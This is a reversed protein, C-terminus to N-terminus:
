KTMRWKLVNSKQLNQFRPIRNKRDSGQYAGIRRGLRRQRQIQHTGHNKLTRLLIKAYLDLRMQCQAACNHTNKDWAVFYIKFLRAKINELSDHPYAVLNSLAFDEWDEHTDDSPTCTEVFRCYNQTGFASCVFIPHLPLEAKISNQEAMQTMFSACFGSNTSEICSPEDNNCYNPFPIGVFKPIFTHIESTECDVVVFFTSSAENKRFDRVLDRQINIIADANYLAENIKFEPHEDMKFCAAFHADSFESDEVSDFDFLIMKRNGELNDIACIECLDDITNSNQALFFDKMEKREHENFKESLKSVNRSHAIVLDNDITQRMLFAIKNVEFNADLHERFSPKKESKWIMPDFSIIKKFFYTDDMAVPENHAGEIVKFKAHIKRAIVLRQDRVIQLQAQPVSIEFSSAIPSSTWIDTCSFLISKCVSDSVDM